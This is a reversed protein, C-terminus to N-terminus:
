KVENLTWDYTYYSSKYKRPIPETRYTNVFDILSDSGVTFDSTYWEFIQSFQVKKKKANVKIFNANNLALKTQKNLQKELTDPLYAENIIPPCGLGACVLVFHFRPDNDFQARLIKNEIDNLTVKKGSIEHINKDFFGLIDLPSKIPYEAVVSQIVTLNYINIWFARYQNSNTKQVEITSALALLENLQNPSEKIKKYAVKGEILNEQLFADTKDLFVSLDQSSVSTFIALSFLLFVGKLFQKRM